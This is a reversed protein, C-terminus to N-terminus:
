PALVDPCEIIVHLLLNVRQTIELIAMLNTSVSTAWDRAVVHDDDNISKLLINFVEELDALQGHHKINFLGNSVALVVLVLPGDHSLLYLVLQITNVDLEVLRTILITELLAINLDRLQQIHAIDNLLLDHEAAKVSFQEHPVIEVNRWSLVALFFNDFAAFNQIVILLFITVHGGFHLIFFYRQIM